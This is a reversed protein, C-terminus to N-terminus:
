TLEQLQVRYWGVEAGLHLEGDGEKDQREEDWYGSGKERNPLLYLNLIQLTRDLRVGFTDVLAVQSVLLWNDDVVGRVTRLSGSELKGERRVADHAQLHRSAESEQEL